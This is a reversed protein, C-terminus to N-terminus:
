IMSICLISVILNYLVRPFISYFLNDNKVYVYSLFISFTFYPLANLFSVLQFPQFAVQFYWTIVSSFAIFLFRNQFVSRLSKRFVIEEVIPFAIATLFTVFFWGSLHYQEIVSSLSADSATSDWKPNVLNLFVNTLMLIAFFILTYLLIKKISKGPSKKLDQGYKKFDNWYIMVFFVILLLNVIVTLLNPKSTDLLFFQCLFYVAFVLVTQLLRSIKENKMENVGV